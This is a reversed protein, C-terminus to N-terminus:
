IFYRGSQLNLKWSYKNIGSEGHVNTVCTHKLSMVKSPCIEWCFGVTFDLVMMLKMVSCMAATFVFLLENIHPIEHHHRPWANRQQYGSIWLIGWSNNHSGNLITKKEGLVSSMTLPILTFCQISGVLSDNPQSFFPLNRLISSQM